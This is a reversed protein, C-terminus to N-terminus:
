LSLAFGLSVNYRTVDNQFAVPNPFFMTGSLTLGFDSLVRANVGLGAETGLYRATSDRELGGLSVPGLTPRAFLSAGATVSFNDGFSSGIGGLPKVSLDLRSAIINNLRPNVISGFSGASVPTFATANGETNGELFATKDEDGSAIVGTLIATPQVPIDLFFEASAGALWGFLLSGLYTGNIYSLTRGVNAIGFVDYYIGPVIPGSLGASFYGTHVPGGVVRETAGATALEPTGLPRMDVQGSLGVTVNQGDWFEGFVDRLTFRSTALARPPALLYQDFFNETSNLRDQLDARSVLVGSAPAFTAGTYGLSLSLDFAPANWVARAGDAPDNIVLGTADRFGFRGASVTLLGSGGLPVTTTFV